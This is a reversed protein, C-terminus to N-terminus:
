FLYLLIFISFVKEYIPNTVGLILNNTLSKPNKNYDDLENGCITVYPYYRGKFEIPFILSQLLFVIESSSSPTDTVIMISKNLLVIEWLKWIM